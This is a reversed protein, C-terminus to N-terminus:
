APSSPPPATRWGSWRGTTSATAHFRAGDPGDLPMYFPALDTDRDTDGGTGVTPENV